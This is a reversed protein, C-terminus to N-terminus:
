TGNKVAELFSRFSASRQAIVQADLRSAIDGSVQATYVNEGLLNRLHQKPNRIGDPRSPDANGLSRGLYQRLSRDDAFYWSELHWQAYAFQISAEIQDGLRGPVDQVFPALVEAPTNADADVLIVFKDPPRGDPPSWWDSKILKEAMQANLEGNRPPIRVDVQIDLDQLHAVLHPIAQRETNGSALVVVRKTAM